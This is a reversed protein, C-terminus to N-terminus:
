ATVDFGEGNSDRSGNMIKSAELAYDESGDSQGGSQNQRNSQQFSQQQRQDQFMGSQFALSQSVELKDVQIGQSVLASRLQSLQAELADKGMATQAAFQAVLQGNHMSLKVEVQGLTEPTLTLRAETIGNVEQLRLKGLVFKTMDEVLAQSRVIGESPLEAKHPVLRNLEQAFTVSPAAENPEASVVAPEAAAQGDQTKVLDIRHIPMTKAALMKLRNSASTMHTVQVKGTTDAQVSQGERASSRLDKRNNQVAPKENVSAEIGEASSAAVAAAAADKGTGAPQLLELVEPQKALIMGLKEEMQELFVNGERGTQVAQAMSRLIDQAQETSVAATHVGEIAKDEQVPEEMQVPLVNEPLLQMAQLLSAAQLMWDQVEDNSLLKDLLEPQDALKTLLEGVIAQSDSEGTESIGSLGQVGLLGALLQALDPLTGSASDGNAAGGLVQLLLKGFAAADGNVTGTGATAATPNVSAAGAANTMTQVTQM